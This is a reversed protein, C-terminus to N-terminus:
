PKRIRFPDIPPPAPKPAASRVAPRQGAGRGRAPGAARRGPAGGQRVGPARPGPVRAPKLEPGGSPARAELTVAGDTPRVGALGADVPQDRAALPAGGDAGVPSAAIAADVHPATATVATGRFRSLLLLWGVAAAVVVLGIGGIVFGWAPWASAAPRPPTPARTALPPPVVGVPAAATVPGSAQPEIMQVTSDPVGQLADQLGRRLEDVSQLRRGPERSLARGVLDVFSPPADPRLKALPEPEGYCIRYLISPVSPAIFAKRGTAMEYLIAGMAWVDTEPGLNAAQGDAQEPSMYSPTGLLRESTTAFTTGRVKSLGFDLIKPREEGSDDRALFINQPKLDRHVIGARHAVALASLVQDAIRGLERWLLPGSKLRSGLDEGSLLEMIICPSGDDLFEWDTVGVIGPHHFKAVVQAERRFRALSEPDDLLDTNLKKLAFSSGLERHRVEYVAGMGGRGILRVVEYKQGVVQGVLQDIRAPSNV